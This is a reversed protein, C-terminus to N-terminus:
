ELHPLDLSKQAVAITVVFCKETKSIKFIVFFTFHSM